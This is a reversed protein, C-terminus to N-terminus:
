RIKVNGDDDQLKSFLKGLLEFADSQSEDIWFKGDAEVYFQAMDADLGKDHLILVRNKGYVLEYKLVANGSFYDAYMKAFEEKGIRALYKEQKQKTTAPVNSLKSADEIRESALFSFYSLSSNLASSQDPKEKKEKFVVAPNYARVTVSIKKGDVVFEKKFEKPNDGFFM